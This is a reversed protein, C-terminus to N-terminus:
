QAEEETPMSGDFVAELLPGSPTRFFLRREAIEPLDMTSYRIGLAELKARFGSYGELHIGVHDFAEAATDEGYGGAGILHIIPKDGAFLWHGPIRHIATPRDHEELYEFVRLFFARTGALDRTRVTIQDLHMIGEKRQFVAIVQMDPPYNILKHFVLETSGYLPSGISIL